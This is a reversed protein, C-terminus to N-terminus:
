VYSFFDVEALSNTNTDDTNDFVHTSKDTWLTLNAHQVFNEAANTPLYQSRSAPAADKGNSDAPSQHIGIRFM